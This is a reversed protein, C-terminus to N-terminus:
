GQYIYIQHHQKDCKWRDRWTNNRERKICMNIIIYAIKYKLKVSLYRSSNQKFHKLFVPQGFRDHWSSEEQLTKWSNTSPNSKITNLLHTHTSHNIVKRMNWKNTTTKDRIALPSIALVYISSTIFMHWKSNALGKVFRM